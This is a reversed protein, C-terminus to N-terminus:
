KNSSGLKGEGRESKYSLVENESVEVGEYDPVPILLVQAIAKTIPYAVCDNQFDRNVQEESTFYPDFLVLPKDNCNTIVINIIGRYGSDIVGAGYKMAKVGTSGREQVLLVYGEPVVARIGTPIMVTEFPEIYMMERHNLFFWEKDLYMDAGADEKRKTPIICSDNAKSWLVKM